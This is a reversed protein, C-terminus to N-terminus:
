GARKPDASAADIRIPDLANPDPSNPELPRPSSSAPYWFPGLRMGLGLIPPDDWVSRYRLAEDARGTKDEMWTQRLYAYDYFVSRLQEITLAYGLSQRWYCHLRAILLPPVASTFVQPKGFDLLVVDDTPIDQGYLARIAEQRTRAGERHIAHFVLDWAAESSPLATYWVCREAQTRTESALTKATDGLETILEAGILRVQWQRATYTALADDGALSRHMWGFLKERYGPTQERFNGDALIPVFVHRVGHDLILKIADLM